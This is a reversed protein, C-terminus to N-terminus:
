RDPAYRVRPFLTTLSVTRPVNRVTTQAVVTVYVGEDAGRDERTFQVRPTNAPMDLGLRIQIIAARASQILENQLADDRSRDVMSTFLRLAAVVAVAAIASAVLADLLVFGAEGARVDSTM